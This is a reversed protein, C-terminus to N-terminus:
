NIHRYVHNFPQASTGLQHFQIPDDRDVRSVVVQKTKCPSSLCINIAGEGEAEPGGRFDETRHCIEYRPNKVLVANLVM